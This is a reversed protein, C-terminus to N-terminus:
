FIKFFFQLLATLSVTIIIGIIAKVTWQVYSQLKEINDINDNSRRYLDKIDQKNGLTILKVEKLKRDFDKKMKRRENEAEVKVEIITERIQIIKKAVEAKTAKRDDNENFDIIKNEKPM